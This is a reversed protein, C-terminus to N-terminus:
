SFQVSKATVNNYKSMDGGLGTIVSRTGKSGPLRTTLAQKTVGAARAAATAPSPLGIQSPM